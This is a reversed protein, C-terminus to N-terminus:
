RGGKAVTGLQKKRGVNENARVKEGTIALCTGGRKKAGPNLKAKRDM